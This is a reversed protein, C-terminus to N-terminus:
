ARLAGQPECVISLFVCFSHIPWTSDTGISLKRWVNCVCFVFIWVSFKLCSRFFITPLYSTEVFRFLLLVNLHFVYFEQPLRTKRASGAQGLVIQFVM